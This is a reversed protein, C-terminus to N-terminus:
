SIYPMIKGVMGLRGVSSHLEFRRRANVACSARWSLRAQLHLTTWEALTEALLKNPGCTSTRAVM